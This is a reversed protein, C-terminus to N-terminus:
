PLLNSIIIKDKWGVTKPHFYKEQRLELLGAKMRDVEHAIIDKDFQFLACNYLEDPDKEVALHYFDVKRVEPYNTKVLTTYFASQLFYNYDWCHYYYKKPDITNSTKLDVIIAHDGNVTLFDLMGCIGLNEDVLITQKKWNPKKLDQWISQQQVSNVIKLVKELMAQNLQMRNDETKSSRRDVVLFEKNFKSKTNTLLCDVASGIILSDTKEQPEWNIYKRKYLYKDKLFTSLKSSSIYPNKKTFYNKSNLKM